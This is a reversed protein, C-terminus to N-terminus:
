FLPASLLYAWLFLIGPLLFQCIQDSNQRPHAKSLRLILFHFNLPILLESSFNSLASIILYPKGFRHPGLDGLLQGQPLCHQATQHGIIDPGAISSLAQAPGEQSHLWLSYWAFSRSNFTCAPNSISPPFPHSTLPSISLCSLSHTILMNADTKWIQVMVTGWFTRFSWSTCVLQHACIEKLGVVINELPEEAAPHVIQHYSFYVSGSFRHNAQLRNKKKSFGIM